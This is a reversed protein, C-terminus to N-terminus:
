MLSAKRLEFGAIPFLGDGVRLPNTDIPIQDVQRLDAPYFRNNMAGDFTIDLGDRNRLGARTLEKCRNQNFVTLIFQSPWDM